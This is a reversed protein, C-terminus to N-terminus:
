NRWLKNTKKLPYNEQYDWIKRIVRLCNIGYISFKEHGSETIKYLEYSCITSESKSFVSLIDSTWVFDGLELKPKRKKRKERLNDFVINENVKESAAKPTMKTSNRITFNYKKFIPPLESIWDAIGELVVPKKLLNRTTRIVREAM